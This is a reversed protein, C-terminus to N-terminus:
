SISEFTIDLFADFPSLRSKGNSTSRNPTSGHPLYFVIGRGALQRKPSMSSELRTLKGEALSTVLLDALTAGNHMIDWALFVMSLRKTLQLRAGKVSKSKIEGMEFLVSTAIPVSKGRCDIEFTAVIEDDMALCSLLGLAIDGRDKLYTRFDDTKYSGGVWEKTQTMETLTGRKVSGEEDEDTDEDTSSSSGSLQKKRTLQATARKILEARLTKWHAHLFDAISVFHQQMAAHQKEGKPLEIAAL